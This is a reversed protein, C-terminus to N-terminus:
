PVPTAVLIDKERFGDEFIFRYDPNIDLLLGQVASVSTKWSGFLRVDDILITHTKIPHKKICALEILLSTRGGWHADLWFVAPRTISALIGPLIKGSDGGYLFVGPVDQFRFAATKKRKPDSEISHIETFGCDLAKQVGHGVHTGTEIFLDGSYKALTEKQITM